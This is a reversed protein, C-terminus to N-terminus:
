VSPMNISKMNGPDNYKLLKGHRSNDIILVLIIITGSAYSIRTSSCMDEKDTLCLSLHRRCVLIVFIFIDYLYEFADCVDSQNSKKKVHQLSFQSFM